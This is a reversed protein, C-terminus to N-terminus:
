LEGVGESQEREQRLQDQLQRYMDRVHSLTVECQNRLKQSGAQRDQEKELLMQHRALQQQLGYLEVGIREREVNTNKLTAKQM